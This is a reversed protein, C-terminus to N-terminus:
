GDELHFVMALGLLASIGSPTWAALVVPISERLGLAFVVDSFFFLLFGALVGGIVLFSTSNRQSQKLTFTAAILVMACLLLPAALLSHWYLRHRLASFGARDLNRIFAPLAWFSLMEPPSFSDNINNLTINTSIWHEAKFQPRDAEREHVWADKLHWFGDELKAGKASIHRRYKDVGDYMFITVDQLEINNGSLTLNPAHIVSQNKNNSQRLWLGNSSLALLSTEGKFYTAELRDHKTLFASAMPNLIMIKILGIMFTVALVPLLFQWASVGAARAVVLESSRTLRWFAVMGGFLVAFPFAQQGLFLLKLLSMRIVLTVGINEYGSARRLLEITDFLFILGILIAFVALFSILFIRCVYTSLIASMNM